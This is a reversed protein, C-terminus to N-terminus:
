RGLTGIFAVVNRMAQEDPLVRAMAQMQKGTRDAPHSGRAGSKFATLQALLYWDDTGALVPSNM